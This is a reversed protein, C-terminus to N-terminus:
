SEPRSFCNAWPCTQRHHNSDTGGRSVYDLSGYWTVLFDSIAETVHERLQLVFGLFRATLPDRDKAGHNLSVREKTMPMDVQTAAPSRGVLLSSAVMEYQRDTSSIWLKASLGM